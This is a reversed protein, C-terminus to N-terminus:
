PFSGPPAHLSPSRVSFAEEPVAEHPPRATAVECIPVLRPEAGLPM